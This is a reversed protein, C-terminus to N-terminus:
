GPLGAAVGVGRGPQAGFKMDIVVAHHERPRKALQPAFGLNVWQGAVVVGWGARGVAHALQPGCGPLRTPAM